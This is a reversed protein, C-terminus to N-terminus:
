FVRDSVDLINAPHDACGAFVGGTDQNSEPIQERPMDFFAMAGMVLVVTFLINVLPHNTLLSKYM